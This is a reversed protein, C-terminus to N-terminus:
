VPDSKHHFLVYSISSFIFFISFPFFIIVSFIFIFIFFLFIVIDSNFSCLHYTLSQLTIICQSFQIQSTIFFFLFHPFSFCFTNIIMPNRAPFLIPVFPVLIIVSTNFHLVVNASSSRLPSSFSLYLSSSTFIYAYFHHFVYTLFFIFLCRYRIHLLLFSLHPLSINYNM